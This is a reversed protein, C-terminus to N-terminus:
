KIEPSLTRSLNGCKRNINTFPNAHDMVVCNTLIIWVILIHSSKMFFYLVAINEINWTSKSKKSDILLQQM